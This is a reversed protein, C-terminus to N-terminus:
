SRKGCRRSGRMPDPGVVEDEVGAGIPLLQLTQRHDVFVRAFRQRDIDGAANPGGAYDLHKRPEDAEM